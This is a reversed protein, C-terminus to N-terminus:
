ASTVVQRELNPAIIPHLLKEPVLPSIEYRAQVLSSRLSGKFM